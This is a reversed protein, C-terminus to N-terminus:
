ECPQDPLTLNRARARVSAAPDLHAARLAAAAASHTQASTTSLSVLADLAWARLFPRAHRAHDQAFRAMRDANEATLNMHRASQLLHLVAGWDTVTDLEAVLNALGTEDLRGGETLHDRLLWSAGFQVRKAEHGCLAVLADPYGPFQAFQGAIAVLPGVAQDDLALLANELEQM